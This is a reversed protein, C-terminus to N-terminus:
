FGYLACRQYSGVIHTTGAGATVSRILPFNLLTNPGSDADDADNATVGGDKGAPFFDIGLDENRFISNHRITNGVSGTAM